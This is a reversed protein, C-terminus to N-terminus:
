GGMVFHIPSLDLFYGNTPYNTATLWQVRIAGDTTVDIRVPGYTPGTGAFGYILQTGGPRFGVPLTAILVQSTTSAITTGTRTLLGYVHVIGSERRAFPAIFPDGYHGWGSAYPLDITEAGGRGELMSLRKTVSRMWAQIDVPDPASM